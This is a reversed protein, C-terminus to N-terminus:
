DREPEPPREDRNVPEASAPPIRDELSRGQEPEPHPEDRGEHRRGEYIERQTSTGYLGMQPPQAISQGDNYLAARLESLGQRLMAEAHGAGLKPQSEEKAM